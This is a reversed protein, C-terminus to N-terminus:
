KTLYSVLLIILLIVLLIFGLGLSIWIPSLFWIWAIKIVGICKLIIVAAILFLILIDIIRDDTM